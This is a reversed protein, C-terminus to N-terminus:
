IPCSLACVRRCPCLTTPGVAGADAQSFHLNEAEERSLGASYPDRSKLDVVRQPLM